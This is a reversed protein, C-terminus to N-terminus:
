HLSPPNLKLNASQISHSTPLLPDRPNKRWFPTDSMLSPPNNESGIEENEDIDDILPEPPSALCPRGLTYALIIGYGVLQIVRHPNVDAVAEQMYLTFFLTALLDFVTQLINDLRTLTTSDDESQLLKLCYVAGHFLAYILGFSGGFWVSDLAPILAGMELLIDYGLVFGKTAECGVDLTSTLAKHLSSSSRTPLLHLISRFNRNSIVATLFAPAAVMYWYSIEGKENNLSNFFYLCICDTYTVDLSVRWAIAFKKAKQSSLAKINDIIIEAVPEIFATSLICYSSILKISDYAEQEDEMSLRKIAVTYEETIFAISTATGITSLRNFVKRFYNFM